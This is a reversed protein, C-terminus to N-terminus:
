IDICFFKTNKMSKMFNVSKAMQGISEDFEEGIAILITEAHGRFTGANSM